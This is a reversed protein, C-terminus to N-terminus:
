QIVGFSSLLDCLVIRNKRSFEDQAAKGVPDMSCYGCTSYSFLLEYVSASTVVTFRQLHREENESGGDRFSEQTYSVGKCMVTERKSELKSGDIVSRVNSPTYGKRKYARIELSLPRPSGPKLDLEDGYVIRAAEDDSDIRYKPPLSFSLERWKQNAWLDTPTSLVADVFSEATALFADEAGSIFKASPAMMRVSGSRKAIPETAMMMPQANEAMIAMPVAEPQSTEQALRTLANRTGSLSALVVLVVFAAPILYKAEREFFAFYRRYPSSVGPLEPVPQAPLEPIRALVNELLKQDPVVRKYVSAVKSAIDHLEQEIDSFHHNDREM